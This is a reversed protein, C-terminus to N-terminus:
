PPWRTIRLLLHATCFWPIVKICNLRVLLCFTYSLCIFFRVFMSLLLCTAFTTKSQTQKNKNKASHSWRTSQCEHYVFVDDTKKHRGALKFLGIVSINQQKVRRKSMSLRMNKLNFSPTRQEYQFFIMGAVNRWCCARYLKQVHVYINFFMVLGPSIDNIRRKYRMCASAVHLCSGM